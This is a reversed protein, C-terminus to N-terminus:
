YSIVQLLKKGSQEGSQHFAPAPYDEDHKSDQDFPSGPVGAPNFSIVAM